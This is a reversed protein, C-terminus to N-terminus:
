GSKEVALARQRDEDLADDEVDDVVLGLFDREVSAEIVKVREETLFLDFEPTCEYQNNSGANINGAYAEAQM